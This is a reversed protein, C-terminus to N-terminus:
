GRLITGDPDFPPALPPRTFTPNDPWSIGLRFYINMNSNHLSGVSSDIDTWDYSAPSTPNFATNINTFSDIAANYNWFNSYNYYDFEREDHPRVINVGTQTFGKAYNTQYRNVGLLDKMTDVVIAYNVYIQHQAYIDPNFFVALIVLLLFHNIAKM